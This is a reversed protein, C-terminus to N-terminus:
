GGYEAEEDGGLFAMATELYWPTKKIFHVAITGGVRKGEYRDHRTERMAYLQAPVLNPM